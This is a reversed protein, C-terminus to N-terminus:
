SKNHLGSSAIFFCTHYELQQDIKVYCIELLAIVMNFYIFFYKSYACRGFLLPDHFIHNDGVFLFIFCIRINESTLQKIIIDINDDNSIQLFKFGMFAGFEEKTKM